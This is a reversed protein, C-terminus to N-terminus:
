KEQLTVELGGVKRCVINYVLAGVYGIFFGALAYIIFTYLLVPLSFQSSSLAETPVGPKGGSIQSSSFYLTVVYTLYIVIGLLLGVISFLFASIKATQFPDIWEVIYKKQKM